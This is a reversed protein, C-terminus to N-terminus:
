DSVYESRLLGMLHVDIYRGGKYQAERLQGEEAFGLKRYLSIARENYGLVSLHVRNLNLSEFAYRVAFQTCELGIGQGWYSADGIMIAFEAQGVRHDINYLGVHGICLDKETDVIVWLVENQVNRHHEIWDRIDARAYGTSFGGLLSAVAPDNKQQYLAELDSPEPLRLGISDTLQHM